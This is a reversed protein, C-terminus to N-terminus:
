PEEKASVANLVAATRQLKWICWIMIAADAAELTITGISSVATGAASGLLVFLCYIITLADTLMFFLTWIFTNPLLEIKQARLVRRTYWLFALSASASGTWCLLGALSWVVSNGQDDQVGVNAFVLLAFVLTLLIGSILRGLQLRRWKAAQPAIEEFAEWAALPTLLALFFSEVMGTQQAAPTTWGYAWSVADFLASLLCYLTIFLYPRHLRLLLIRGLLLGELVTEAMNMWQISHELM